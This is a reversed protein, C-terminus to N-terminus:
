CQLLLFKTELYTVKIFDLSGHVNLYTYAYSIKNWYKHDIGTIEKYM